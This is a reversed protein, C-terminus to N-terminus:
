RKKRAAASARAATGGVDGIPTGRRGNKCGVGTVRLRFERHRPDSTTILLRDSYNRIGPPAFEVTVTVIGGPGISFSSAPGVAASVGKREKAGAASADGNLGSGELLVTFPLNLTSLSVSLRSGHHLNRIVFQRRVRTGYRVRGFPIQNASVQATGGSALAVTLVGCDATATNGAVDAAEVTVTYSQATPDANAPVTWTGRFQDQGALELTVRQTTGDARTVVAVVHDLPIADTVTATFTVQGGEAPLERPTADCAQIAPPVTDAQVTYSGCPATRTNGAADTAILEVDYVLAAGTRNPLAAFTTAFSPGAGPSLAATDVVSGGRLIRATVSTVGVNDTISAQIQVAGGTFPLTSPALTCSGIQPAERDPAAVTVTGCDQPTQNGSPDSAVLRVQYSVPAASSNAPLSFTGSYGSGGGATLQVTTTGNPGQVEAVVSQVSVNDTADATITITGGAATLARPAVACNTLVPATTDPIAVTFAGCDATAPNGSSDQATIVVQYSQPSPGPNPSVVYTGQYNNGGQSALVVAVQSGGPVTVLARVSSVAADDTVTATITVSGGRALLARPTVQCASIVPAQSDPPAVTVTGCDATAELGSTDVARFTVRYSLPASTDNAPATWTGEFTDGSKPSLPVVASFVNPIEVLAEVRDIGANDTVDARLTVPGGPALLTRPLVDCRVLVPPEADPKLVSVTGCDMTAPNGSSDVATVTVQYNVDQASLNAPATFVGTYSNGPSSLPIDTTGSPGTVHAIVSAVSRNDTVTATITFDGGPSPLRRPQVMCASITPAQTDPAQVVFTGCRTIATNNGGDMAVVFVTYTQDSTGPNAPAQYVGSYSNGSGPQLNIVAVTGDPRSIRGQVSRVGINDTVVATITVAGGAPPLVTPSSQCSTIVPPTADAGGVSFTGCDTASANELMDTATIKVAYTAPSLASNAPATFTGQYTSSTGQPTLPIHVTSADPYTVVAEAGLVGSPDTIDARITVTGGSAPLARPIVQCNAFAPGTQDPATVTYTGCPAVAKNSANDTAEFRVGYIRDAPGPNGPVMYTGQYTSGTPPAFLPVVTESNDPNTVVVKASQIGSVDTIDAKFTLYGGFNPLSRPTVDCNTITPPVNDFAAVTFTGCDAASRNASLDFAEIKVGYTRPSTMPNGPAQFFGEYRNTDPVPNLPVQSTGGGQLTVFATVSNVGTGDIVEAVIHVSGGLSPLSRPTADCSLITPPTVDVGFGLNAALESTSGDPATATATVGDGNALPWDQTSTFDAHGASDTTVAISNLLFEAEGHGSPDFTSNRYLDVQYTTNPESELFGDITSSTGDSAVSLLVPYNQLHNPGDDLDGGDNFTVADEGLDIGLRGNDLISNFRISNGAGGTVSVGTQFNHAILNGNEIRNNAAGGTISVGHGQNPLPAQAGSDTGIRNGVVQNGTAASGSLTVGDQRNASIVNGDGDLGGIENDASEVRVGSLNNPIATQGNFDVGIRNRRIDNGNASSRILVGDGGNGSITNQRIRNATANTEILVGPGAGGVQANGDPNTGISNFTVDTGAAGQELRIGAVANGSITNSTITNDTAGRVTVGTANNALPATGSITTGILNLQVVNGVSDPGFIFVGDDGNGSLLNAPGLPSQPPLSTRSFGGSTRKSRATRSASPGPQVTQLVSGGVQNYASNIIAVGGDGNAVITTGAGDTGILNGQILTGSVGTGEIRIGDRFNGSLLNGEGTLPGGIINNFTVGQDDTLFVGVGRNELSQDCTLNVGVVNGALYNDSTNFLHIGDGDNGSILSNQVMNLNAGNQILVGQSNNPVRSTGNIDTGIRCNVIKNSSGGDLTVGGDLNGSILCDTISNGSAGGTMLVGYQTGQATGNGQALTGSPDTGIYCAEIFNNFATDGLLTIGNHGFRNIVLSRVKCGDTRIVLGSDNPVNVGSLEIVPTGSYGPQTSGDITVGEDIYPLATLPQIRHIGTGPINFTINDPGTTANATLLAERLSGAGSDAENTVVLPPAFTGALSRPAVAAAGLLVAALVGYARLSAM